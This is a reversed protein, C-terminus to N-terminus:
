VGRWIQNAEVQTFTGMVYFTFGANIEPVDSQSVEEIEEFHVKANKPPAIGEPLQLSEENKLNALATMEAEEPTSAEVFRTTYFGILEETNALVGPFNEGEIFCRYWKMKAGLTKCLHRASNARGLSRYRVIQHM